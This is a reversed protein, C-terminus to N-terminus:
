RVRGNVRLECMKRWSAAEGVVLPTRGHLLRRPAEGGEASVRLLAFRCRGAPHWFAPGDRTPRVFEIEWCLLLNTGRDLHRDRPDYSESHSLPQGTPNTIETLPNAPSDRPTRPARGFELASAHTSASTRRPRASSCVSLSRLVAPDGVRQRRRGLSFRLSRDLSMSDIQAGEAAWSRV